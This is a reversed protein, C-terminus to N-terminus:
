GGHGNGNGNAKRRRRRKKRRGQDILWTAQKEIEKEYDLDRVRVFGVHVQGDRAMEDRRVYGLAAAAQTATANQPKRTTGDFWGHFTTPSVGTIASARNNNLHNESQVVTRLADIMPDKDLFRYNRYVNVKM